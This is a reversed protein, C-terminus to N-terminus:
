TAFMRVGRFANRSLAIDTLPTFSCPRADAAPAQALLAELVHRSRTMVHQAEVHGVIGLRVAASSLAAILTWGALLEAAALSLGADRYALGQAVPLHGLRDDRAITERYRIAGAHGLRASVGLLARGARRSGERMQASPTAAETLRDIEAVADLERAEFARRLLLRDMSNWGYALQLARDFAAEAEKHHLSRAQAVAIEREVAIRALLRDPIQTSLQTAQDIEGAKALTESVAAVLAARRDTRDLLYVQNMAENLVCDRDPAKLCDQWSRGSLDSACAPPTGMAILPLAVCLLSLRM